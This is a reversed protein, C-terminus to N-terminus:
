RPGPESLFVRQFDNEEFGSAIWDVADPELRGRTWIM